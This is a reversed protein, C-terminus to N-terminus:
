DGDGFWFYLTGRKANGGQAITLTLQETGVCMEDEVPEGGVAFLSAAGQEDSTAYRPLKQFAVTGINALNLYVFGTTAGVLTVDAGTDLPVSADPVYRYQLLSAGIPATITDTFAGGASTLVASTVLQTM